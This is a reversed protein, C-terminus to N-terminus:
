RRKEWMRASKRDAERLGGMMGKRMGLREGGGHVHGRSRARAVNERGCGKLLGCVVREREGM